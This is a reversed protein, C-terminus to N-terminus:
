YSIVCQKMETSRGPFITLEILTFKNTKGPSREYFCEDVEYLRQNRDDDPISLASVLGDHVSQLLMTKYERTQGKVIEIRVLPMLIAELRRIM